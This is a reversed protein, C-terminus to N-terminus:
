AIHHWRKHSRINHIASKVIGYKNAMQDLSLETERRIQRVINENLKASPHREGRAGRDKKVMDGQNVKQTGRFLHRPNICPRVDCTHLVNLGRVTNGTKKKRPIKRGNAIAWAVVHTSYIKNHGLCIAGYGSSRKAHPWLICDDTDVSILKKLTNMSEGRPAYIYRSKTM